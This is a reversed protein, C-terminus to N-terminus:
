KKEYPFKSVSGCNLCHTAVRGKGIRTKSTKGVVLYTFCNKCFTKKVKKPLRLRLKQAIKNALKAAKTSYKDGPKRSAFELLRLIENKAIQRNDKSM